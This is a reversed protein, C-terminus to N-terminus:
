IGSNNVQFVMVRRGPCHYAMYIRSKPLCLGGVQFVMFWRGLCCYAKYQKSLCLGGVHM